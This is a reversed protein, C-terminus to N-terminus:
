DARLENLRWNEDVSRPERSGSLNSCFIDTWVVEVDQSDETSKHAQCGVRESTKPAGRRIRSGPDTPMLGGHDIM